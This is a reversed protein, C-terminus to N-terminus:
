GARLTSTESHLEQSVVWSGTAHGDPSIQWLALAAAGDADEGLALVASGPAWLAAVPEEALAMEAVDAMQMDIRRRPLAAGSWGNM